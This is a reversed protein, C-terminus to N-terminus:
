PPNKKKNQGSKADHTVAADRQFTVRSIQSTSKNVVVVRWGGVGGWGEKDAKRKCHLMSVCGQRM